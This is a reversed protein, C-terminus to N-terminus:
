DIYTLYNDEKLIKFNTGKYVEITGKGKEIKSVGEAVKIIEETSIVLHYLVGDKTYYVNDSAGSYGNAVFYQDYGKDKDNTNELEDNDYEENIDSVIDKILQKKEKSNVIENEETPSNNKFIPRNLFLFVVLVIFVTLLVCFIVRQKKM